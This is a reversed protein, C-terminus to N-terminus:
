NLKFHDALHPVVEMLTHENGDGAFALLPLMLQQYNPVPM